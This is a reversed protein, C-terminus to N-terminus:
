PFREVRPRRPDTQWLMQLIRRGRHRSNYAQSAVAGACCIIINYSQWLFFGRDLRPSTSGEDQAIGNYRFACICNDASDSALKTSNDAEM